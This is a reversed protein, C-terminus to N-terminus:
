SQDGGRESFLSQLGALAEAARHARGAVTQAAPMPRGDAPKATAQQRNPRLGPAPIEADEFPAAEQMIRVAAAIGEDWGAVFTSIERQVDGALLDSWVLAGRKTHAGCRPWRREMTQILLARGRQAIQFAATM